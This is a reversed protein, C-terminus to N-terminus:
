ARRTVDLAECVLEESDCEEFKFDQHQIPVEMSNNLNGSDDSDDDSGMGNYNKM